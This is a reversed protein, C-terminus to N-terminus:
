KLQSFGNENILAKYKDPYVRFIKLFDDYFVQRLSVVYFILCFSLFVFDDCQPERM